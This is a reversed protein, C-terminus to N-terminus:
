IQNPSRFTEETAKTLNKNVTALAKYHTHDTIIETEKKLLIYFSLFKENLNPIFKRFIKYIELISKMQKM